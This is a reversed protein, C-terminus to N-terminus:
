LVTKQGSHEPAYLSQRQYIVKCVVHIERTDAKLAIKERIMMMMVIIVTSVVTILSSQTLELVFPKMHSM